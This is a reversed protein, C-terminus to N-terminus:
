YYPNRWDQIAFLFYFHLITFGTNGDNSTQSIRHFLWYNTTFSISSFDHCWCSNALDAELKYMISTNRLRQISFVIIFKYMLHYKPSNELYHNVVKKARKIIIKVNSHNVWYGHKRFESNTLLTKNRLFMKVWGGFWYQLRGTSFITYFTSTTTSTLATPRESLSM